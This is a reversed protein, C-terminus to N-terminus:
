DTDGATLAWAEGSTVREIGIHLEWIWQSYPEWDPVFRSFRAQWARREVLADLFAHVALGSDDAAAAADLEEAVGM